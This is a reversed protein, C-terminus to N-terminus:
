RLSYKGDELKKFYKRDELNILITNPKVFRQKSVLSIIKDKVMPGKIRLVGAIVDKVTGNEFGWEKLAYLGRGVLIFRDDKILENHVTQVHVNRGVLKGIAGAVEAFHLPEGHKVMVIHSLDRMGRPKVSPFETLGWEGFHNQAILKSLLVWNELVPKAPVSGLTNQSSASLIEFLKPESVPEGVRRLEAVSQDLVRAAKEDADKSLCWRTYLSNEEIQRFLPKHFKLLFYVNNEYKSAPSLNQLVKDERIVGGKEAFYSEIASFIGAFEAQVSSKRMRAFGDAEIQRVRERTIGYKKGIADLTLRKAQKGLGFRQELIDKTRKPLVKFFATTAM